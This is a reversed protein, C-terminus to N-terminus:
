LETDDDDMGAPPAGGRRDFPDPGSIGRLPGLLVLAYSGAFLLAVGLAPLVFHLLLSRMAPSLRFVRVPTLGEPKSLDIPGGGPPPPGYRVLHFGKLALAWVHAAAPQGDIRYHRPM